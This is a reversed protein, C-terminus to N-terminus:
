DGAGFQGRTASTRKAEVGGHAVGNWVKHQHDILDALAGLFEVNKMKMDIQKMKRQKTREPRPGQCRQVATLVQAVELREVAVEALHRQDGDGVVLAFWQRAGIKNLRDMVTDRRVQM